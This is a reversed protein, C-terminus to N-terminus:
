ALTLALVGFTGLLFNLLRWQSISEAIRASLSPLGCTPLDADLEHVSERMSEVVTSAQQPQTQPSFPVTVNM